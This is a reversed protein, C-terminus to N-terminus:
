RFWKSRFKYLSIWNGWFFFFCWFGEGFFGWIVLIVGWNGVVMCWKIWDLNILCWNMGVIGWDDWLGCVFWFGFM